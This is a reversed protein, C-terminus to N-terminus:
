PLPRIYHPFIPIHSHSIAFTRFHPFSLFALMFELGAEGMVNVIEHPDCVAALTGQAALLRGFRAPTLHSSEVHVHADIFAPATATPGSGMSLFINIFHHFSYQLRLPTRGWQSVYDDTAKKVKVEQGKDFKTM